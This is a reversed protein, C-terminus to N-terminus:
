VILAKTLSRFLVLNPPLHNLEIISDPIVLANAVDAWNTRLFVLAMTVTAALSTVNVDFPPQSTNTHKTRRIVTWLCSIINLDAASTATAGRRLMIMSFAISTSVVYAERNETTSNSIALSKRNLEVIAVEVMRGSGTGLYLM